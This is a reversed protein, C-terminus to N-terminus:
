KKLKKLQEWRPDSGETTNENFSSYILEDEGSDEGYRPHLKKMPISIHIFEYIYQALGLRQTDRHIIVINDDLEIDEEGFKFILDEQKKINFYFAELSRDCELKVTVDIIFLISIFTEKKNLEINIKGTGEEIESEQMETFFTHDINFEYHHEGNSLKFIDIKFKGSERM